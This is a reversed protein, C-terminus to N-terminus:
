IVNALLVPNPIPEEPHQHWFGPFHQLMQAPNPASQQYIFPARASLSNLLKCM